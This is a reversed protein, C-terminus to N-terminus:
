LFISSRDRVVISMKRKKNTDLGDKNSVRGSNSLDRTMKGPALCYLWGGVGLWNLFVAAIGSRGVQTMDPTTNLYKIIIRSM